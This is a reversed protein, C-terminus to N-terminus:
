PALEWWEWSELGQSKALFLARQHAKLAADKNGLAVYSLSMQQQWDASLEGETKASLLIQQAKDAQQKYIFVKALGICLETYSAPLQQKADKLLQDIQGEQKSIFVYKAFTYAQLWELQFGAWTQQKAAFLDFVDAYKPLKVLEDLDIFYQPSLFALADLLAPMATTYHNEDPFQQFRWRWQQNAVLESAIPNIADVMEVVGMGQENAVSLFLPPLKSKDQQKQKLYQTFLANSSYNDFWVSPSMALYANFPTNQQMMSYLTFLGGLSYGALANNGSTRFQQNILPILEQALYSQLLAAGGYEPNDEAAWTTSKIYDAQGQLAIGVVIMPPIKGVRALNNVAASVHRFQFDGDIIYFVPYQRQTAHYREPLAVMYRREANYLNSNHTFSQGYVLSSRESVPMTHTPSNEAQVPSILFICALLAIRNIQHRLALYLRLKCDM